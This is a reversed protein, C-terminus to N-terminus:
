QGSATVSCLLSFVLSSNAALTNITLGPATLLASAMAAPALVPCVAGANGVACSAATCALGASPTDLLRAGDGAFPGANSVTISYATTSGAVVSATADSKSIGLATCSTIQSTVTAQMPQVVFGASGQVTSGLTVTGTPFSGNVPQVSAASLTQTATNMVTAACAGFASSVPATIVYALSSGVPLTVSSSVAGTGSAAPCVAGNFPTCTWSAFSLLAPSADVVSANVVDHATLPAVSLVAPTVNALTVTYTLTGGLTTTAASVSKTTRLSVDNDIITHTMSTTAVGGCNSANAVIYPFTASSPLTITVVENNEIATDDLVRLPLNFLTNGTDFNYNGAPVNFTLTGSRSAASYAVTVGSLLGAGGFDYDALYDATPASFTMTMPMPSTIRGVFRFQPTQAMASGEVSFTSTTLEAFPKLTINIDDLFNGVALNGGATSVAVFGM